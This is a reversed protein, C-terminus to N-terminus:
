MKLIMIKIKFILPIALYIKMKELSDQYSGKVYLEGGANQPLPTFTDGNSILEDNLVM